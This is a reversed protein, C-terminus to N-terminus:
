LPWCEDMLMRGEIRNLWFIEFICPPATPLVPAECYSPEPNSGGTHLKCTRRTGAHTKEPSELKRGCDLSMCTLNIPTINVAYTHIRDHQLGDVICLFIVLIFCCFYCRSKPISCYSHWFNDSSSRGNRECDILYCLQKFFGKMATVRVAQHVSDCSVWQNWICESWYPM